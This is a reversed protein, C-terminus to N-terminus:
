SDLLYNLENPNILMKVPGIRDEEPDGSEEFIWDGGVNLTEIKLFGFGPISEDKKELNWESVYTLVPDLVVEPNAQSLHITVSSPDEFSISKSEPRSPARGFFMMASAKRFDSVVTVANSLGAHYAQHKTEGHFGASCSRLRNKLFMPILSEISSDELDVLEKYVRMANLMMCVEATEITPSAIKLKTNQNIWRGIKALHWSPVTGNHAPVKLKSTTETSRSKDVLYRKLNQRTTGLLEALDSVGVLDPGAEILKAGQIAKSVQVMVSSIAEFASDAERTVDLVVQGYVGLGILADDCGAEYLRNAIDEYDRVDAPLSFSLEFEYEKAIM